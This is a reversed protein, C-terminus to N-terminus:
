GTRLSAALKRRWRDAQAECHDIVQSRQFRQGDTMFDFRDAALGAKISWGEALAAYLGRIGYAGDWEDELPGRGEADVGRAMDLLQDVDDPQLKPDHDPQLRLRL